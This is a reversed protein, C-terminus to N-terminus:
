KIIILEQIQVIMKNTPLLVVLTKRNWIVFVVFKITTLINNNNNNINNDVEFENKISVDNNNNNRREVIM